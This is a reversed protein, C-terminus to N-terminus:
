SAVHRSRLYLRDRDPMGQQDSPLRFGEGFLPTLQSRHAALASRRRGPAIPKTTFTHAKAPPQGWVCYEFVAVPRMAAVVVSRALTGAAAHDCHPEDSATVAIADVRERRCFSALREVTARWSASGPEFPHADPWDLFM